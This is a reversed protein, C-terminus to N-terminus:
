ERVEKDPKPVTWKPDYELYTRAFEEAEEINPFDYRIAVGHRMGVKVMVSEHLNKALDVTYQSKIEAQRGAIFQPAKSFKIALTIV